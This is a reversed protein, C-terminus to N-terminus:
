RAPSALAIQLGRATVALAPAAVGAARLLQSHEPKLRYVSVDELLREALMAALRQGQIPLASGGSDLQFQQVRVQSLRISQDSPEFRVASDLNLRGNAGRGTVRESAGVDFAMGLRNREPLLWLQPSRVTVDLLQAVRETRPFQRALLQLLQEQSLTYADPLGLAACGGLSAAAPLALWAMARRRSLTYPTM